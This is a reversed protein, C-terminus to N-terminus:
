RTQPKGYLYWFTDHPFAPALTTDWIFEGSVFLTQLQSDLASLRARLTDAEGLRTVIPMLMALYVRTMITHPYSDALDDLASEWVNLRSQIERLTKREINAAWRNQLTDALLDLRAFEGSQEHNLLDRRASLTRRLFLIGGLSLAPMQAKGVNWFVVDSKVYPEFEALFAELTALDSEITV